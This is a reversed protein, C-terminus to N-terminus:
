EYKFLIKRSHQLPDTGCTHLRSLKILFFLIYQKWSSILLFLVSKRNGTAHCSCSSHYSLIIRQLQKCYEYIFLGPLATHTEEMTPVTSDHQVTRSYRANRRLIKRNKFLWLPKIAALMCGEVILRKDCKVQLPLWLRTITVHVMTWAVACNYQGVGVCERLFVISFRQKKKHKKEGEQVFSCTCAYGCAFAYWL